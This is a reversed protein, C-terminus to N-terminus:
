RNGRREKPLPHFCCQHIARPFIDQCGSDIHTNNQEPIRWLTRMENAQLKLDRPECNILNDTVMEFRRVAWRVCKLTVALYVTFQCPRRVRTTLQHFPNYTLATM